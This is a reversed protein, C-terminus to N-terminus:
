AYLPITTPSLPLYQYLPLSLSLSLSLSHSHTLHLSLSLSPPLYHLPLPYLLTYPPTSPSPSITSLSPSLYLPLSPSLSPSPCFPLSHFLTLHLSLSHHSLPTYTPSLSLLPLSPYFSFSFSSLYLLPLSHPLKKLVVLPDFFLSLSREISFSIFPLFSMM